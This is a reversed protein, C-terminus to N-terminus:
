IMKYGFKKWIKLAREGRIFAYLSNSQSHGNHHIAGVFVIPQHTTDPFYGAIDVRKSLLADTAYVVGAQAENIEVLKLASRVDKTYIIRNNLVKEWQLKKIAQKAYGGAPVYDPDGMALNGSFEWIFNELTYVNTKIKDKNKPVVLVLDNRVIHKYSGSRILGLRDLYLAWKKNALLMIDCYAGNAIQRALTGSSAFNLTISVDFSDEYVECIEQVVNKMGMATFVTIQTRGETSENKCGSCVITFIVFVICHTVPLTLTSKSISLSKIIAKMKNSNFEGSLGLNFQNVM